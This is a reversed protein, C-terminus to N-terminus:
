KLAHRTSKEMRKRGGILWIVKYPHSLFSLMLNLVLDDFQLVFLDHSCCQHVQTTSNEAKIMLDMSLFYIHSSCIFKTFLLNTHMGVSCTISFVIVTMEHGIVAGMSGFNVADDADKDFFPHQLIAAPFM